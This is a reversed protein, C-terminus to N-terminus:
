VAAVHHLAEDLVEQTVRVLGLLQTLADDELNHGHDVDITDNNAVVSGAHSTVIEISAVHLWVKPDVRNDAGDLLYGRIQDIAWVLLRFLIICTLRDSLIFVDECKNIHMSVRPLFIYEYIPWLLWEM